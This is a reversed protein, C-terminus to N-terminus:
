PPPTVDIADTSVRSVQIALSSDPRPGGRFAATDDPGADTVGSGPSVQHFAWEVWEALEHSGVVQGLDRAVHALAVQMAQASQWRDAPDRQLATM